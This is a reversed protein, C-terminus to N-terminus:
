SYLEQYIQQLPTPVEERLFLKPAPLVDMVLDKLYWWGERGRWEVYGLRGDCDFGVLRGKGLYPRGECSVVCGARFAYKPRMDELRRVELGSESVVQCGRDHTMGELYTM